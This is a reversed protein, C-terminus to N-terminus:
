ISWVRWIKSLPEKVLGEDGPLVVFQGSDDILGIKMEGDKIMVIDGRRAKLLNRHGPGYHKSVVVDIGGNEKIIRFAGTKSRYGLYSNYTNVGTMVEAGKVAFLVCDNEGWKFPKFRMETLYDSLLKDWNEFRRM